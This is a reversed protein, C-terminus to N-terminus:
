IIHICPFYKQALYWTGLVQCIFAKVGYGELKIMGYM